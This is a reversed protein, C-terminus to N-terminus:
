QVLSDAEDATSRHEKVLLLEGTKHFQEVAIATLRALSDIAQEHIENENCINLNIKSLWEETDKWTTILKDYSIKVNMEAVAENLKSELETIPLAEEEDDEPLECLEKVQEITEEIETLQDGVYTQTLNELKINCQKSLMELAELHVLGQHDDFLTEYNAKKPVHKQERIQNEKEANEKAERLVQSLIPKNQDLKLFATKNKLGPDNEQLIEATKKGITELTDLGGSIVKSSTQEVLKTIQTVGSVINGFGFGISKNDSDGHNPINQTEKSHEQEEKHIKALDEPNPVGIGTEIASTIGQTVQSTISSATSFVSSIGWNGWGGWSDEKKKNSITEELPEWEDNWANEEETMEKKISISKDRNPETDIEFDDWDDNNWMNDNDKKEEQVNTTETWADEWANQFTNIPKTCKDDDLTTDEQKEKTQIKNANTDQIKNTCQTKVNELPIDVKDKESKTDSISLKELKKVDIKNKLEDDSNIEEDASEFYESDSTEM